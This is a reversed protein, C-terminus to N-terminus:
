EAGDLQVALPNSPHDSRASRKRDAKKVGFPANGIAASDFAAEWVVSGFEL